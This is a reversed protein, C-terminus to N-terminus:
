QLTEEMQDRPSSPPNSQSVLNAPSVLTASSANHLKFGLGNADTMLRTGDSAGNDEDSDDLSSRTELLYPTFAEATASGADSSEDASASASLEDDTGSASQWTNADSSPEPSPPMRIPLPRHTTMELGNGSKATSEHISAPRRRGTPGSLMPSESRREEDRKRRRPGPLDGTALVPTLRPNINGSVSYTKRSTPANLHAKRSNRGTSAVRHLGQALHKRDSSTRERAHEGKHDHIDAFLQSRGRWHRTPHEPLMQLLPVNPSGRTLGVFVVIAMLVVLQALGVRREFIVEQSLHNLQSALAIRDEEVKARHLDVDLMIKRLMADQKARAADYYEFRTEVRAFAERLMKGQEEIYRMSLSANHELASLRKMITGYISEGPQTHAPQSSSVAAARTVNRAEGQAGDANAVDESRTQNAPPLNSVPQKTVSASSPTSDDRQSAMKDSASQRVESALLVSTPIASPHEVSTRSVNDSTHTAQDAASSGTAVINVDVTRPAVRAPGNWLEENTPVAYEIDEASADLANAAAQMRMEEERWSAIETLGYVRLLSVPCFHETGYHTVFDIRLYRYFGKLKHPKFIQLGRVNRARFTGLNIWQESDTDGTSVALRDTVKVSFLKFMSSFFEYNALVLTDIEIAECLEIIVFKNPTKCPTLMYRDKAERLISSAGKTQKSSRHVAAACDFSAYNTRSALKRLPSLPDTTPLDPLPHVLDSAIAMAYEESKAGPESSTRDIPVIASPTIIAQATGTAQEASTLSDSTAESRSSSVTRSEQIVASAGLSSATTKVTRPKPENKARWEDFPVFPPVATPTPSVTDDTKSRTIEDAAPTAKDEPPRSTISAPEASASPAESAANLSMSATEDSPATVSTSTTADANLVSESTAALSGSEKCYDTLLCVDRHSRAHELTSSTPPRCTSLHAAQCTAVLCMTWLLWLM